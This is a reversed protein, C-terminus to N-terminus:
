CNDLIIVFLLDIGMKWLNPKSGEAGENDIM